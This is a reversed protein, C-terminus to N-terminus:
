GSVRNRIKDRYPFRGSAAITDHHEQAYRLTYVYYHTNGQATNKSEEVLGKYLEVSLQQITMDESHMLPLYLFARQILPMARDMGEGMTRRTLDLAMRDYAYMRARGRYMNRPFQDFVIVLALRGGATVEWDQYGGAAAKALDPEFRARIEEDFVPDQMFWKKFPMAKTDIATTDDIGEFWFDLIDDIRSV